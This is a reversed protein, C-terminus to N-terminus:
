YGTATNPPSQRMREGRPAMLPDAQATTALGTSARPPSMLTTKGSQYGGHLHVDSSIEGMVDLLSGAFAASLTLVM